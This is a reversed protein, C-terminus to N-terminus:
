TMEDAYEACPKKNNRTYINQISGCINKRIRQLKDLDTNIRKRYYDSIKSAM